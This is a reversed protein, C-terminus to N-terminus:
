VSSCSQKKFYHFLRLIIIGYNNLHYETPNNSSGKLITGYKELINKRKSFFSWVTSNSLGLKNAVNNVNIVKNEKLLSSFTFFYDIFSRKMQFNLQFIDGIVDSNYFLNNIFKTHVRGIKVKVRKSIDQDDFIKDVLLVDTHYTMHCNACIFGGEQRELEKSIESCPLKYLNKKRLNREKDRKKLTLDGLKHLHNFAFVPLHDKTNFEGCIPCLENNSIELIYRKKILRVIEARTGIKKQNDKIGKSDYHNDVCIWILAYIIESPLDYISQPFSNPINEWSVLEKFDHFCSSNLLSHHCRCLIKIEESEAKNVLLQLFNPNGRNESFLKFLDEATYSFEKKGEHHFEKSRIIQSSINFLFGEKLCEPCQIINDLFYKGNNIM